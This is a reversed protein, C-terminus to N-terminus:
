ILSKKLSKILNRDLRNEDVLIKLKGEATRTCEIEM